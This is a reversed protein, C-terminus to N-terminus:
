GILQAKKDTWQQWRDLAVQTRIPDIEMAYVPRGQTEGAILMSGAGAYLDLVLEKPKTFHLLLNELFPVSKVHSTDYKKTGVVRQTKIDNYTTYGDGLNNFKDEMDFFAGVLYHNIFIGRNPTYLGFGHWCYTLFQKFPYENAYEILNKDFEMVFWVCKIAGYKERFRFPVKVLGYPPDAFVLDAKKDGLLKAINTELSSDGCMLRHQGLQFIDGDKIKTTRKEDPVNEKDEETKKDARDLTFNKIGLLDINFEPSFNGINENIAALDLEAWSAISNESVMAAYEQDEDQFDQYMVPVHKLGMKRAAMLRGHGSVLLGTRNSVILPSRWGQYEIIESLRQIQEPSHRNMNAPNPQVKSIDVIEINKSEIQL